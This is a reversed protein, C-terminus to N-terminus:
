RGLVASKDGTGTTLVVYNDLELETWCGRLLRRALWLRVASRWGYSHWKVYRVNTFLPTSVPCLLMSKNRLLPQRNM